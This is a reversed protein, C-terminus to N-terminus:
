YIAWLIEGKVASKDILGFYRSDFSLYHPATVFLKGKPITGNYDFSIVYPEGKSDTPQVVVAIAEDKEDTTDMYKDTYCIFRNEVRELYDGEMCAIMKFLDRDKVKAEYPTNPLDLGFIVISGREIRQPAGERALYFRNPFSYSDNIAIFYGNQKAILLIILTVLAFTAVISLAIFAQKVRNEILAL